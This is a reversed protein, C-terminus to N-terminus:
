PKPPVPAPEAPATQLPTGVPMAVLPRGGMSSETGAEFEASALDPRRISRVVRPTISLLIESRQGDDKQSGFLRGLVPVEGLGPVKNASSRDEDNILGALIQTEGNRLRLVTNAGRTGIQYSLTGSKSLIERVLNSVELNVKIAVEDDLYITPEVELKLGVDVYNVSEAVFGTSVSTTTIVPVRDGIMVKAKEKNRVRIRPNALINVDQDEKRANATLSGVTARTTSANLDKLAQLTLPADGIQLPSLSLQGPWQIGLELIRARKIELIEVELMVEPDSIDQLAVIREAMRIAEPTDRLLILGIREDIVMDQSKVITRISNSVAKVDANTLFFSRVVLPQYDKVKQASNPYILVSAGSLVKMKLQNSVLLINLVDEVTTDKAGVTAKADGRVEQDLTFSLGSVQAIMDLVSKLPADKFQLSIPRRFAAALKSGSQAEKLHAEDVKAKLALAAPNNPQEILVPRILGMVEVGAKGGSNKFLAEAQALSRQHGRATELAALGQRAMANDADLSQVQRYAAEAADLRNDRRAGEATSLTRNVISARRSALAIRYEANRPELRVAEDLKALGAETKGDALLQNGDRFAMSGACGSLLVLCMAAVWGRSATPLRETWAPTHDATMNM